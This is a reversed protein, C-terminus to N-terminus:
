QNVHATCMRVGRRMWCDMCVRKNCDDESCTYKLSSRTASKKGCSSCLLEISSPDYINTISHTETRYSTESRVDTGLAAVTNRTAVPGIRTFTNERATKIELSTLDVLLERASGYRDDPNKQMCKSIIRDFQYPITDNMAKSSPVPATAHRCVIEQWNDGNYPAQGTVLSFLTCGLSYIDARIDCIKANVAQEPPMYLPSGMCVNEVTLAVDASTMTDVQKALGLDALKYQGDGTVMINEPKIDRHIINFKEAEVLASCIAIAVALGQANGLRSNVALIDALDGGDVYEMLIYLHNGESGCDYVRVVNQHNIKAAVQAERYFRQVFEPTELYEPLLFKVAIPIDLSTHRALYVLGMGGKGLYKEIKCKGIFTGVLGDVSANAQITTKGELTSLYNVEEGAQKVELDSEIRDAIDIPNLIVTPSVSDCFICESSTEEGANVINGCRPCNM